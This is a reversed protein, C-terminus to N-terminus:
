RSTGKELLTRAAHLVDGVSIRGIRCAKAHDDAVHEETLFPEAVLHRERIEPLVTFRRDTPGFLVVSPTGLGAALHRPGTDNTILLESRSIVSKLAAISGGRAPLDILGPRALEVVRTILEAEAPSGNVLITVERNSRLDDAVAAFSEASWRKDERNAGPNLVVFPGDVGELLRDGASRQEESLGLRPTRDRVEIGFAEEVLRAYDDLTTTPTSTGKRAKIPDIPDTLLWRRGQTAYGIRRTSGSVRAFLASRPSNPFLLATDPALKALRRGDKVPGLLGRFGAEEIADVFPAGELIPRLGPRITATIRMKPHAEKLARLAPTAMVIDGIWSPMVVMLHEPTTTM